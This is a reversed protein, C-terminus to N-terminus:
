WHNKWCWDTRCEGQTDDPDGPNQPAHGAPDVWRLPDNASFSDRNLSQPDAPKPVISDPSIFRSLSPDYWCANVWVLRIDGDIRQGSYQYATGVSGQRLAGYPYFRASEGAGNSTAVTSGL